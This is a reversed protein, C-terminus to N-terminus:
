AGRRFFSRRASPTPERRPQLVAAAVHLLYTAFTMPALFNDHRVRDPM